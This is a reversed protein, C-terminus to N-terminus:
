TLSRIAEAIHEVGADMKTRFQEVKRACEEKTELRVLQILHEFKDLDNIGAGSNYFGADRILKLTDM